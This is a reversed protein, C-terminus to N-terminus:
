LDEDEQREGLFRNLGQCAVIILGIMTLLVSGAMLASLVEDVIAM